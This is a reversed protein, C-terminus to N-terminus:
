YCIKLIKEKFGPPIKFSRIFTDPVFVYLRKNFPSFKYWKKISELLGYFLVYVNASRIYEKKDVSLNYKDILKIVRRECNLEMQRYARMSRRFRQISINGKGQIWDWIDNDLQRNHTLKMFTPEREMWQQFHCYEHIFTEFWDKQSKKTAVYLEKLVDDFYGSCNEDDAKVYEKPFFVVKVNAKACEAMALGLFDTDNKTIM